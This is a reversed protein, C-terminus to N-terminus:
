KVHCESCKGAVKQSESKKHCDKCLSHFAKKASPAKTGDHCSLCSGQDVGKHHCTACDAIAAQHQAHNFTVTGKTNEFVIEDPGNGAVAVIGLSLFALTICLAVLQKM